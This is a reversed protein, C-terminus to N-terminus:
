YVSKRMGRRKLKRNRLLSHEVSAMYSADVADIPRVYQAALPAGRMNQVAATMEAAHLRRGRQSMANMTALTAEVTTPDDDEAMDRLM